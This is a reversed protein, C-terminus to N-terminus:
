NAVGGAQQPFRHSLFHACVADYRLEGLLTQITKAAPDVSTVRVPRFHFDRQRAFHKRLPEAIADPELGGTAVQYLLPWFGHYNNTSLLVVQFSAEPLNEVLNIGGFGGGVVVVRPKTTDPINLSIGQLDVM